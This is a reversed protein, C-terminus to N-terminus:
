DILFNPQSTNIQKSERVVRRIRLKKGNKNITRTSKGAHLLHSNYEPEVLPRSLTNRRKKMSVRKRRATKQQVTSSGEKRDLDWNVM